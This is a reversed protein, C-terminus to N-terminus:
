EIEDNKRASRSAYQDAVALLKTMSLEFGPLLPTRYVAREDFVQEGQGAIFVSLSRSFRNIVWYEKIGISAYEARKQEYDRLWNRKGQSVFEIAITPTQAFDLPQNVGVWIVRDARRRQENVFIDHEPLTDTLVSGQPHLEQYQLLWHGLRENSGREQPLPAPNVVLVGDILEYRWGEVFDGQDFEESSLRMGAAGPGLTPITTEIATAANM